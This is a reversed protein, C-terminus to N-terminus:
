QYQVQVYRRGPGRTGYFSYCWRSKRWFFFVVFFPFLAEACFFCGRELAAGARRNSFVVLFCM